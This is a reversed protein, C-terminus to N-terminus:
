DMDVHYDSSSASFSVLVVSVKCMKMLVSHVVNHLLLVQNPAILACRRNYHIGYTAYPEVYDISQDDASLSLHIRTTTLLLTIM